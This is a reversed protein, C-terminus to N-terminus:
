TTRRGVPLVDYTFFWDMLIGYGIEVCKGGSLKMYLPVYGNEENFNTVDAVICFTDGIRIDHFKM